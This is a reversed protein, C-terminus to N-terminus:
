TYHVHHYFQEQPESSSYFSYSQSLHMSRPTSQFSSYIYIEKTCNRADRERADNLLIELGKSPLKYKRLGREVEIVIEVKPLQVLDVCVSM